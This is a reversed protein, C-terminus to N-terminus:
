GRLVQLVIDTSANAQSLMAAGAQQLVQAKALRSTEAAFDADQIRSRAGITYETVKMLNSVSYDLRNQLTGLSGRMGSVIELAGDITAISYSAGIQTSIDVVAVSELAATTTGDAFWTDETGGNTQTVTYGNSSTMRLTGVVKTTDTATSAAAGAVLEAHSTEVVSTSNDAKTATSYAVSSTDLDIGVTLGNLDDFSGINTQTFTIVKGSSTAGDASGAAATSNTSGSHANYALAFRAAFNAATINNGLTTSTSGADAASHDLVLTVTDGNFTTQIAGTAAPSGSNYWKLYAAYVDAVDVKAVEAGSAALTRVSGAETVGDSKVGAVTINTGAAGNRVIVDDGDSDSLLIKNETTASAMVGTTTHIANIKAVADTVDNKSISFSATSTGNISLQYNESTASSSAVHLYTRAQAFVTTAGAVSNIKRAIDKASDNAAIDITRTKGNGVISIDDADDTFNTTSTYGATTATAPTYAGASSEGVMVYAGLLASEVSDITFNIEEGSMTGVQLSKASFTGNLVQTGNYRTNASVRSIELQLSNLENDAFARETASNTANASQVALERMRQLMGSVEVLANEVTRILAIGDNANKTAMTLGRIQSNMREVMALGAADDAASNIRSGTSLREMASEMESRSETLARQAQIAGINTNLVLGM